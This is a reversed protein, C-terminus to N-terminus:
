ICATKSKFELGVVDLENLGESKGGPRRVNYSVVDCHEVLALYAGVAYEGMETAM